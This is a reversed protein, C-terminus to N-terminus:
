RRGGMWVGLWSDRIVWRYVAFLGVISVLNVLPVQFWWPLQADVLAVQLGTVIPLHAVYIWYSSDSLLRFLKTERSFMTLFWGIWGVLSASACLATLFSGVWRRWETFAEDSVSDGADMFLIKVACCSAFLGVPLWLKWLGAMRNLLGNQLFVIWGSGFFVGYFLLVKWNWAFSRDPTDVHFSEMSVILPAVLVALLLPGWLPSYLKCIPIALRTVGAVRMKGVRVLCTMAGAVSVLIMLYYLFWLHTLSIDPWVEQFPASLSLRWLPMGSAEPPLVLWGTKLGGAIWVASLLIKMPYLAAAFFLLIRVTRDRLWHFLGKKSVVMAGFFGAIFYFIELRFAHLYFAFFGILPHAQTTGVAWVGPPIVWPLASHYVVGLLLAVGRLADLGHIRGGSHGGNGSGSGQIKDRETM